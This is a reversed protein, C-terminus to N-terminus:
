QGGPEPAAHREAPRWTWPSGMGRGRQDVVAGSWTEPIKIGLLTRIASSAMPAVDAGRDDYWARGDREAPMGLGLEQQDPVAGSDLGLEIAM